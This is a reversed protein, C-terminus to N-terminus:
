TACIACFITSRKGGGARVRRKDHEERVGDLTIQFSHIGYPIIEEAVDPTLLSGNTIMGTSYRISRDQSHVHFYRTLGIVVNPALLPERGFWSIELRELDHQSAVYRCIAERIDTPM